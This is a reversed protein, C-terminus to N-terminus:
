DIQPTQIRIQIQSERHFMIHLEEEWLFRDMTVLRSYERITHKRQRENDESAAFIM